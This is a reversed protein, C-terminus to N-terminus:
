QVSAGNALDHLSLHCRISHGNDAIRWPPTEHDCDRNGIPGIRRARM